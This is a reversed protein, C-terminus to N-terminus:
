ERVGGPDRSRWPETAVRYELPRALACAVVARALFWSREDLLLEQSKRRTVVRGVLLFRM